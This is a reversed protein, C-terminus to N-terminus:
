LTSDLRRIFHCFYAIKFIHPGHSVSVYDGLRVEEIRKRREEIDDTVEFPGLTGRLGNDLKVTARERMRGTKQDEFENIAVVVCGTKLGVYLTKDSEGTIITFFEDVDETIPVMPKRLDLWPFRLEDKIQDLQKRRKGKKLQVELDVAYDDLLLMFLKDKLEVSVKKSVEQGERNKVMERYDPYLADTPRGQAWLDVWGPQKNMRKKLENKSDRMISETNSYKNEDNCITELADACIKPAFDHTHYCEPHIRTNDLPDVPNESIRLFGAANTYVVPGLLKKSLLEQRNQVTTLKKRINKCLADAKRLGLGGIFALM